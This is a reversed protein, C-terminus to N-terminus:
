LGISDGTPDKQSDDQGRKGIRSLIRDITELSWQIERFDDDRITDVGVNIATNDPVDLASALAKGALVGIGTGSHVPVPTVSIETFDMDIIKQKGAEIARRFFGGVSMGRLSGNKIQEYYTKLEPHSQIASDVRAKFALGKQDERLEFFKGLLKDHKHHYCLGAQGKLFAKIGRDFAGPAFNEGQRDDGEWVAAYGEITLDGNEEVTVLSATGDEVAKGEPLFDFRFAFLDEDGPVSKLFMDAPFDM